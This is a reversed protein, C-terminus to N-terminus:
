IQENDKEIQRQQSIIILITIEVAYIRVFSQASKVFSSRLCTVPDIYMYIDVSILCPKSICQPVCVCVCVCARVCACVFARVCGGVGVGVRVCM